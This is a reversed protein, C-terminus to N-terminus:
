LCIWAEMTAWFTSGREPHNSCKSESYIASTESGCGRVCIQPQKQSKVSLQLRSSLCPRTTTNLATLHVIDHFYLQTCSHGTFSLGLSLTLIYFCHVYLTVSFLSRTVTTATSFCYINWIRLTDTAETVLMCHAHEPDGDSAQRARCKKWQVTVSCLFHTKM